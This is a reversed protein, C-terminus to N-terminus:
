ITGKNEFEQIKQDTYGLEKLIEKSHEGTLPPTRRIKGPTESLKIPINVTNIEGATAHEYSTFIENHKAQADDYVELQNKLESVWLDADLFCKLWFSTSEQLIKGQILNYIEDRKEFAIVPDDYETLEELDLLEALKSLPNMAISIWGDSTEYYGFPAAVGPHGIGSAPKQLLRKTNLVHTYEQLQHAILANFLNVEVKQGVGTRERNFLATLIGYVMQMAGLQDALGTGLPTPGSEKRGTNFSVGTLGQLLLDQGPRDVYPGDEGFGSGSCYIIDPKIERLKEYSFGLKKMVGPRFNQVVVDTNEVLKYIIEKGEKSKLDIGISRKNRNFALFSPSENEIFVNELTFHRMWDGKKVLEVKVVDAGMDGLMQTAFPGQLLHTFDLIRIGSLAMNEM